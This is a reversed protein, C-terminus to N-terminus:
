WGAANRIMDRWAHALSGKMLVDLVLGAAALWLWRRQEGLAYRFGLVRGLLPGALVVGLTVFSAIRVLSWPVWALAVVAGPHASSAALAGVYYGMYNMLVAGMPMALLSGTALALVCFMTAHLFHQPLFRRIDGEAGVGTLLYTFMERRYADANIFLRGGEATRWYGIATACVGMAAAWILMRVIAEDARGRRLAQIMFPFAPLTNFIPVIAPVGLPLAVAYSVATGAVIAVPVLAPRM